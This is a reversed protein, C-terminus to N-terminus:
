QLQFIFLRETPRSVLALGAQSGAERLAAETYFSVHTPDEKYWWSAFAAWGGPPLPHTSIAAYGEQRCLSALMRFSERSNKFHEATELCCVLDYRQNLVSPDPAFFPDWGYVSALPFIETKILSVLVPEIGSGYDLVSNVIYGKESLYQRVPLIFSRLYSLYGPDASTNNHLLYRAREKEASLYFPPLLYIGECDACIGYGRNKLAQIKIRRGLCFPCGEDEM